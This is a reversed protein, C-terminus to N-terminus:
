LCSKQQAFVACHFTCRRCARLLSGRNHRARGICYSSPSYVRADAFLHNSFRYMNTQCHQEAREEQNCSRTIQRHMIAAIHTTFCTDFVHHLLGAICDMVMSLVVMVAATMVFVLAIDMVQLHTLKRLTRLEMRRLHLLHHQHIRGERSHLTALMQMRM